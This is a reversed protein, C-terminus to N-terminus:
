ATKHSNVLSVEAKKKKKKKRKLCTGSQQQHWPYPFWVATWAHLGEAPSSDVLWVYFELM